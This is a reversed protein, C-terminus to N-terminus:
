YQVEAVIFASPTQAALTLVAPEGKEILLSQGASFAAREGGALLVGSGSDCYLLMADHSLEGHSPDEFCLEEEGRESFRVAHLSGASKGKRLMLNFDTCRGQAWTRESGDFSHVEYPALRVPPCAGHTLTLTGRLPVIWRNYEPLATFVSEELEVSASSIRWLFDRDAYVADEPMIAIQATEGGSWRSLSYCARPLFKIM